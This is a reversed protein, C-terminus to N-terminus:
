FASIRWFIAKLTEIHVGNSLMQSRGRGRGEIRERVALKNIKM